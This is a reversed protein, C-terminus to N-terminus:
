ITRSGATPISLRVVAGGENGIYIRITGQSYYHLRQFTNILGIHESSPIVAASDSIILAIDQRLQQLIEESFGSGNDRITLYLQSNDVTGLIDVHRCDSSVNYGHTLANEVLPQLTLKPLSLPWMEAPVDIVYSLQDEYRAKSLMLYNQVHELEERLTATESRTDTSYRLMQAFQDCIETIEENGNEMSKASIINLTNYVFHPNIQTQLAKLRAQLASRGLTIENQARTNLAALMQNFSDELEHIELDRPSTVSILYKSPDQVAILKNVPLQRVRNTLKRTSRTLSISILVVLTIVISAICLAFEIYSRILSYTAANQIAIDEAIYIDMGLWRSETHMVYRHNDATDNYTVMKWFPMDTGTYVATDGENNKYFVTGDSLVVQVLIDESDGPFISELEAISAAVEIFGIHNGHWTAARIASFVPVDHAITFSDTHPAILHRQFSDKEISDLWPIANIIERAEDSLSVLTDNKEFHSSLYFGNRSYISVRYFNEVAPSHYLTQSMRNQASLSQSYTSTDCAAVAFADMFSSNSTVEDMALDMMLVYQEIARVMSSGMNEFRVHTNNLSAELSSQSLYFTNIGITILVMISFILIMKRSIKIPTVEQNRNYFIIDYRLSDRQAPTFKGM